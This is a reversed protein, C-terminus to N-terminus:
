EETNLPLVWLLVLGFVFAISALLYHFLFGSQFHFFEKNKKYLTFIGFPGVTELVGQDMLKFTLTNGLYLFNLAFKNQIL